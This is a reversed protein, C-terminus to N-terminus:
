VKSWFKILARAFYDKIEQLSYGTARSLDALTINYEYCTDAIVKPSGIYQNVYQLTESDSPKYVPIFPIYPVDIKNLIWYETTVKPIYDYPLGFFGGDGWYKGWSNQCLLRQSEDDYGIVVVAHLGIDPTSTNWQHTKWSGKLTYFGDKIMKTMIVPMGLAVCEKIQPLLPLTLTPLLKRYEYVSLNKAEIHAAENPKVNVKTRDFPWTVELCTGRDKLAAGIARSYAGLDRDLPAISKLRIYWYAFLRSFDKPIGARKYAIELLSCAANATCSNTSGQQEIEFVDPILDISRPLVSAGVPNWIYDRSDPPSAVVQELNYKVKSM